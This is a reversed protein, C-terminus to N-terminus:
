HTTMDIAYGHENLWQLYDKMDVTGAINDRVNPNPKYKIYQLTDAYSMVGLTTSRQKEVTGNRYRVDRDESTATPGGADAGHILNSSADHLVPNAIITHLLPRDLMKVGALNAQGVMWNLAVVALDGDPYGGGIDSHAGLFGRELRTANAPTPAGRISEMPFAIANGRYENLAMAQVVYLFGDPIGLQYDGTHTSLVTDFLGMFNLTVKQCQAKGSDDFYHYYGDKFNAAIQNAFDRAEAAGRSFGVIDVNFATEDAITASYKNLDYIMAAIRPKGTYAKAIDFVGGPDTAAPAIGTDEDKTGVGSIYFKDDPYLNFFSVVNTLLTPDHRDNGSGDFAFLVLGSPDVQKLPNGNVYAYGNRGARLGLPDPSLYGGRAPDYYRHDNYYLGTEKDEYQGPLRLNLEFRRAVTPSIDPAETQVLKGFPSYDSQWIPKGASDTVLETAGLHNTQLYFITESRSFWTQWITGIDGRFPQLTTNKEGQASGVAPTDIVAVPQDALYVYQRRIAGKADLEAVVKRGEYLFYTHTNGVIKEIREGRHNYRYRVIIRPGDRVELLKGVADWSFARNGIQDPQGTADYRAATSFADDASNQWRDGNPVYTTKFTNGRTDRQDAFAEQALVRNGNNDYHYRSFSANPSTTAAAILRDHADYAYGSASWKDQTHLLNGQLDWLYRHDLLANPDTPLGLAGPLVTRGAVSAGPAAPAAMARSIGLLTELAANRQVSPAPLWPDRYVIRALRGAKSRQYHADIGNGYTLHKIGVVDRELNHVITQRPLLWRLWRSGVRTRELATIQHQGNRQYDLMSGDPLSMSVLQGIDDYRYRTMYSIHAGGSLTLSVTKASVRGRKDYSYREGQDPHDIAILRTGEYRWTTVSKKGGNGGETVSQRVIRGTADYDYSARNGNADRSAVLRDAADFRRTTNGSDAGITALTRGFDDRVYRTIAGNPAVVATTHEHVDLEFRTTANQSPSPTMNVAEAVTIIHDMADFGFRTVRGLADTLEAPFDRANWSIRQVGGNPYTISQIRGVQDYAYSQTQKITNSLTSKEVLHNETDFHKTSMIGLRSATWTNRGAGDYGLRQLAQYREGDHYGTEVPNDFSDYLTRHTVGDSTFALLQGRPGFRFSTEHGDSDKVAAIRGVRDFQVASRRNGPTVIASINGARQASSDYDAIGSSHLQPTPPTWTNSRNDYEIVTIDSDAPTSTKGNPLPGDIETLLSWQNIVTYRYSTTREIKGDAQTGDVSPAWGVDTVSVPQGFTNYAIRTFTERGPIVSPRAILHPAFSDGQYEFRAMWQVPQAKGQVFALKGIRAVRGLKDYETRTAAIPDGGPALKTKETLQGVASYGYRVNTEGCLACGAGRVELLRHEGAIVAHLYTTKQGLSNTLVTKGFASADLTVKGVNNAHTSLIAHGDSDYGFTSYRTAVTKKDAGTTEISIGTMLWPSAPDEHHYLRSVTSTTTGRSTLAHAPKDPAFSTPLKVKVLLALLNRADVHMAGKPMDSGYQYEFRGVPSDIFQVGRFHNTLAPDFYALELRRGQPDTVRRLVNRQDYDLSVSEGTLAKIQYLKGDGDFYLKRGNTWTWVYETRGNKQPVLTMKGNAPNVTSCLGTHNTDRDFILRGGDAQIIQIKGFRDFLATEYSLRWGRGMAGNPHGPQSNVSNYHRIIELGLVGPLAPMDVEREYKNGTMVNIPNGAGADPGGTGGTSAVGPCSNPPGGPAAGCDARALNPMLVSAVVILASLAGAHLRAEVRKLAIM